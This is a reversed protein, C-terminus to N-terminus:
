SLSSSPHLPVAYSVRFQSNPCHAFNFLPPSISTTPYLPLWEWGHSRGLDGVAKAHWGRAPATENLIAIASSREARNRSQTSLLRKQKLPLV